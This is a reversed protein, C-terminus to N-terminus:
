EAIFNIGNEKAYKEAVSGAPAHITLKTDGDFVYSDIFTENNKITIDTLNICGAFAENGIYTVSDPVTVNNLNMCGCFAGGAINTVGAPITVNTLSICFSFACEGISKVSDPITVSTIRWRTKSVEETTYKTSPTFAHECIETVPNEGIEAPIEVETKFGKYGTIRISNEEDKEFDFTKEWDAVSVKKLGLAKEIKDNAYQERKEVSYNKEKYNMLFAKLLITRNAKEIYYDLEDLEFKEFLGFLKEVVEADDTEIAMQFIDYKNSKLLSKAKESNSVVDPLQQLFANMMVVKQETGSFSNWIAELVTGEFCEINNPLGIKELNSCRKFAFRDIGGIGNPININKINLCFEFARYGVTTDSGLITVSTLGACRLFAFPKINTVSAPIVIDTLGTCGSFTYEAIETIGAPIKIDTLGSCSSFAGKGIDVVSEPIIVSTLNTCCFFAKEGISTVSEPITVSTLGTCGYFASRGISTVKDPIVVDAANGTYKTLAGNELVFDETSSM